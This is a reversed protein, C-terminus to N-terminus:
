RSHSLIPMGLFWGPEELRALEAGALALTFITDPLPPPTPPAAAPIAPAAAAAM